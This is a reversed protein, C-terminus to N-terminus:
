EAGEIEEPWLVSKAGDSYEVTYIEEHTCHYKDFATHGPEIQRVETGTIKCGLNLRDKSGTYCVLKLKVSAGINFRPPASWFQHSNEITWVRKIDSTHERM